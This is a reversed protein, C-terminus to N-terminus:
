LEKAVMVVKAAKTDLVVAVLVSTQQVLLALLVLPVAVAQAVQAMKTVLVVVVAVM